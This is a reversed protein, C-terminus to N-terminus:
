NSLVACTFGDNVLKIIADRFRYYDEITNYVQHSIRAYGTIPNVEGELPARYYIPVEVKFSVRLYTRLKLADSDSSVGLCAPMGVMAMSSCMESPTGLKTGWAKVLMEAMEVVKDHNRRRIGEIGGEFRNVFEVVEPIVLQASYDRTGIWASEIPLGNGYENSVVPHHLDLVKDSKKCYLFAASPPSFFWKHLNSTYFDAGIDGVDVEVNGIAHAGDVFIIDVGENRCMEVLEKVPIVVSPMSTIHDIVALRIKGGNIKGMKLAKDFETIIEENSLLPFTKPSKFSKPIIGFDYRILYTFVSGYRVVKIRYKIYVILIGFVSYRLVSGYNNFVTGFYWDDVGLHKGLENSDLGFPTNQIDNYISLLQVLIYRLSQLDYDMLNEVIQQSFGNKFTLDRSMLNFFIVPVNVLLVMASLEIEM